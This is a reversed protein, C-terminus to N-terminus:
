GQLDGKLVVLPDSSIVKNSDSVNEEDHNTKCNKVVMEYLNTALHRILDEKLLSVGFIPSQKIGNEDVYPIVLRHRKGSENIFACGIVYNNNIGGAGGVITNRRSGEQVGWQEIQVSEFM